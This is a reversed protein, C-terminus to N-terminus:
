KGYKVKGVIKRVGCPEDKMVCGMHAHNPYLVVVSGKVLEVSAANHDPKWFMIDKESDYESIQELRSIDSIKMIESGEVIYQIDIYQRHSETKCESEPKTPYEQFTYYFNENVVYKGLDLKDTDLSKIYKIAESVTEDIKDEDSLQMVM